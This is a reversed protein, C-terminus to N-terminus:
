KDCEKPKITVWVDEETMRVLGIDDDYPVETYQYEIVYKQPAAEAPKDNGAYFFIIASQFLVVFFIVYGM